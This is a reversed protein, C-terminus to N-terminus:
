PFIHTNLKKYEQQRLKKKQAGQKFNATIIYCRARLWQGVAENKPLRTEQNQTFQNFDYIVHKCTSTSM